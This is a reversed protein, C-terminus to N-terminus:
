ESMREELGAVPLDPRELVAVSWDTFTDNGDRGREPLRLVGDRMASLAADSWGPAAGGGTSLALPAGQPDTGALDFRCANGAETRGWFVFGGISLFFGHLGHRPDFLEAAFDGPRPVAVRIWIEWYPSHVGDERIVEGQWILRGDDPPGALPFSSLTRNWRFVGDRETLRGAFARLAAPTGERRIDGCILHSQLWYVDSADDRLGDPTVLLGRRWVGPLDALRVAAGSAESRAGNQLDSAM